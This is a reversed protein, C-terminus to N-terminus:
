NKMIYIKTFFYPHKLAKICRMFIRWNNKVTYCGSIELVGQPQIQMETCGARPLNSQNAENWKCPFYAEIIEMFLGALVYKKNEGTSPFKCTCHLPSSACSGVAHLQSQLLICKHWFHLICHLADEAWLCLRKSWLIYHITVYWWGAM